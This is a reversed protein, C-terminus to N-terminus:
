ISKPKISNSSSVIVTSSANPKRDHEDKQPAISPVPVTTKTPALQGPSKPSPSAADHDDLLEIRQDKALQEYFPSSILNTLIEEWSSQLTSFRGCNPKVHLQALAIANSLREVGPLPANFDSDGHWIHLPVVHRPVLTALRPKQQGFDHQPPLHSLSSSLSPSSSSSSSLLPPPLPAHARISDPSLSLVFRKFDFSAGCGDVYRNILSVDFGNLKKEQGTRVDRLFGEVGRKFAECQSAIVDRWDISKLASIENACKIKENAEILPDRLSLAASSRNFRSLIRLRDIRLIPYVFRALLRRRRDNGSVLQDKDQPLVEPSILGVSTLRHPHLRPLVYASALATTAGVGDGLIAFQPLKLHDALEILDIPYDIARYDQRFPESDGYGPRDVCILRVGLKRTIAWDPDVQKALLDFRCAALTHLVIVPKGQKDGFETYALRRGDTLTISESKPTANASSSIYKKAPGDYHFTVYYAGLAAAIALKFGM